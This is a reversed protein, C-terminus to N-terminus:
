ITPIIRLFELQFPVYSSFNKLSIKLYSSFVQYRFYNIIAYEAKTITFFNNLSELTLTANIPIDIDSSTLILLDNGIPITESVESYNLSGVNKVEALIEPRSIQQSNDKITLWLPEVQFGKYKFTHQEIIKQLIDTPKEM